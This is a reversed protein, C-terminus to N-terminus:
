GRAGCGRCRQRFQENGRRAAPARQLQGVQPLVPLEHVEQDPAVDLDAVLLRDESRGPGDDLRQKRHDDEADEEPLQSLYRGVTKWIGDEDIAGQERPLEERM